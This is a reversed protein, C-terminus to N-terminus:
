CRGSEFLADFRGSRPEIGRLPLATRKEIRQGKKRRARRGATRWEAAHPLGSCLGKVVAISAICVVTPAAAVAQHGGTAALVGCCGFLCHVTVPFTYRAIIQYIM